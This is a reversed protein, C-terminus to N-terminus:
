ALIAAAIAIVAGTLAISVQISSAANLPQSGTSSSSSSRSTSTGSNCQSSVLGARPCSTTQASSGGDVAVGIYWQRCQLTDGTTDGPNGLISYSMCNSVCTANNAYVGNCYTNMLDCFALCRSGCTASVDNVGAHPCHLQKAAANGALAFGAHYYRCGLTDQSIDTIMGVPWSACRLLCHAHTDYQLNNAAATCANDMRSCFLECTPTAVQCTPSVVGVHLCHALANTPSSL